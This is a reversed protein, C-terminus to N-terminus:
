EIEAFVEYGGNYNGSRGLEIEGGIEVRSLVAESESEPARLLAGNPNDSRALAACDDGGFLTLSVAAKDGNASRPNRGRIRLRYSAGPPVKMEVEGCQAASEPEIVFGGSVIERIPNDAGPRCRCRMAMKAREDGIRTRMAVGFIM